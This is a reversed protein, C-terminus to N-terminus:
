LDTVDILADAVLLEATLFFDYVAVSSTVNSQKVAFVIPSLAQAASVYGDWTIVQGLNGGSAIDARRPSYHQRVGGPYTRAWPGAPWTVQILSYGAASGGSNAEATVRWVGPQRLVLGSSRLAAFAGPLGGDPALVSSLAFVPDGAAGSNIDGGLLRWGHYGSYGPRWGDETEGTTGATRRDQERAALEAAAADTAETSPM